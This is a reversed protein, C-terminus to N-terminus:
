PGLIAAVEDRILATRRGLDTDVLRILQRIFSATPSNIVEMPAFHIQDQIEPQQRLVGQLLGQDDVSTSWDEAACVAEDPIDDFLAKWHRVLDRAAPRSLNFLLVGANVDWWDQPQGVRAMIAVRRSQDRLLRDLDFTQDVIFADADMYVVWGRYGREVLECLLFLRNFTAQWPWVGRKIGVYSRYDYGHRKCYARVTRSSHSLMEAYLTPDSTQLFLVRKWCLLPRVAAALTM